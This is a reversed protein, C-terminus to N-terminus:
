GQTICSTTATCKACWPSMPNFGGSHEPYRACLEHKGDAYFSKFREQHIRIKRERIRTDVVQINKESRKAYVRNLGITRHGELGAKSPLRGIPPFPIKGAKVRLAVDELYLLPDVEHKMCWQLYRKAQKRQMPHKPGRVTVGFQGAVIRYRHIFFTIKGEAVEAVM